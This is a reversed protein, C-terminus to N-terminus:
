RGSGIGNYGNTIRALNSDALDRSVSSPNVVVSTNSKGGNSVMPIMPQIKPAAPITVNGVSIGSSKAVAPNNSVVQSLYNLNGAPVAAFNSVLSLPAASQGQTIKGSSYRSAMKAAEDGFYSGSDMKGRFGGFFEGVTTKGRFLGENRAIEEKTFVDSILANPNKKYSLAAKTNGTFNVSYVDEATPNAIGAKRLMDVNDKTFAAGMLGAKEPDLKADYLVKYKAAITPDTRMKYAGHIKVDKLYDNALPVLGATSNQEGGHKVLTNAWTGDLFQYLGSATTGEKGGTRIFARVQDAREADFGSESRTLKAAIAPDLGYAKAGNVIASGSNKWHGQDGINFTRKVTDVAAKTFGKTSEWANTMWDTASTWVAVLREILTSGWPALFEGFKSALGLTLADGINAFTGVLRVGIDGWFGTEVGDLGMKKKFDETSTFLSQIAGYLAGLPLALKALFPLAKIISSGFSTLMPLMGGLFSGLKGLLGLATGLFPIKSLLGMLAGFGPIMSLLGMLGGGGSGKLRNAERLEKWIRRYWPVSVKKESDGSGRFWQWGRKFLSGIPKFLPGVIEKVEKGAAIAPDVNETNSTANGIADAIDRAFEGSASALGGGGGKRNGGNGNDDRDSGDLNKTFRGNKTRMRNAGDGPTVTGGTAAVAKMAERMAAPATKAPTAAKQSVFRGMADRPRDSAGLASRVANSIARENGIRPTSMSQARVAKEIQGTLSRRIAGVDGRMVSLIDLAKAFSQKDIEVLEGILFGEEDHKLAM